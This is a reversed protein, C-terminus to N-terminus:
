TVGGAPLPSHFRSSGEEDGLGTLDVRYAVQGLRALRDAGLGALTAPTIPPCMDDVPVLAPPTRPLFRRRYYRAHETRWGTHRLQERLRHRTSESEGAVSNAVDQVAEALSEGSGAGAGTLQLSLIYLPRGNTPALQTLSGIVHLRRESLTTKVELDTGDWSFDHEEADSGKWAEVATRWGRVHGVRRLLWLEGMLGVQREDNLLALRQLLAAWAALASDIAAGAPMGDLQLRDAVACAFAHFDRYLAANTTSIEVVDVGGVRHERIDIEVLPSPPIETDTAPTRVGIRSGDADTFIEVRPDGTVVEVAPPGAQVLQEFREWSLHRTDREM